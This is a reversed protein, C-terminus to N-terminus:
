TDQYLTMKFKQCWSGNLSHSQNSDEAFIINIINFQFIDCSIHVYTSYVFPTQQLQLIRIESTFFLLQLAGHFFRILEVNIFCFIVRLALSM